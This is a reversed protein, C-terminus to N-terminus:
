SSAATDDYKTELERILSRLKGGKTIIADMFKKLAEKSQWIPSGFQSITPFCIESFVFHIIESYLTQFFFCVQTGSSQQTATLNATEEKKKRTSGAELM